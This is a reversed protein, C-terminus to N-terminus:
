FKIEEKLKLNEKQLTKIQIIKRDLAAAKWKVLNESFDAVHVSRGFVHGIWNM